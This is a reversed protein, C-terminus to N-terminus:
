RKTSVAELAELLLSLKSVAKRLDSLDDRLRGAGALQSIRDAEARILVGIDRTELQM